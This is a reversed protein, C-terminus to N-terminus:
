LSGGRHDTVLHKDQVIFTLDWDLNGNPIVAQRTVSCPYLCFDSLSLVDERVKGCNGTCM